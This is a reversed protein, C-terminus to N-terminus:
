NNFFNSLRPITMQIIPQHLFMILLSHKGMKSICSNVIKHRTYYHAIAFILIIGSLGAILNIGGIGYVSWKMNFKHDIIGNMDLLMIIIISIFSFAIVIKNLIIKDAIINGTYFFIFAMPVINLSWFLPVHIKFLYTDIVVILYICIALIAMPAKKKKCICNIFHFLQQTLFLCTVFWFIDFWGFLDRGGYLKKLILNLISKGLTPNGTKYSSDICVIFDPISFIILFVFYPALLHRVKKIFYVPISNDSTYLFGSIFFFLPMHFWFIYKHGIDIIHWIVVLTIGIGKCIDIMENRKPTNDM